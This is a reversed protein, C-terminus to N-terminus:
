GDECFPAEVVKEERLNKMASGTKGSEREVDCLMAVFAKVRSCAMSVSMSKPLDHM